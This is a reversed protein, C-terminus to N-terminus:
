CQHLEKDPLLAPCDKRAPTADQHWVPDTHKGNGGEEAPWNGNRQGFKRASRARRGIRGALFDVNAHYPPAGAGLVTNHAVFALVRIEFSGVLWHRTLQRSETEPFNPWADQCIQRTGRNRKANEDAVLIARVLAKSFQPIELVDLYELQGPCTDRVGAQPFQGWELLQLAQVKPAGLEGVKTQLLQGRKLLQIPQVQITRSRRVQPEPIQESELSQLPEVQVGRRHRVIAQLFQGAELLQLREVEPGRLNRACTQLSQSPEVVQLLQVQELRLHGVM